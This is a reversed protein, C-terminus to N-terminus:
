DSPALAANLKERFSQRMRTPRLSALDLMVYGITGILATTTSTIVEFHRHGTFRGDIGTIWTRVMVQENLRVSARYDLDVSRVAMGQGTRAIEATGLYLAEAHAWACEDLWKLYVVNNVHGYRDIEDAAATRTQTFALAPDYQPWQRKM